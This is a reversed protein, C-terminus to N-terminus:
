SKDGKTIVFEVGQKEAFDKITEAIRAIREREEANPRKMPQGPMIDVYDIFKIPLMSSAEPLLTGDPGPGDPPLFLYQRQKSGAIEVFLDFSGQTSLDGPTWPPRGIGLDDRKASWTRGIKDTSNDRYWSITTTATSM